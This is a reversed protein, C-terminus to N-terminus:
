KDFGRDGNEIHDKYKAEAIFLIDKMFDAIFVWDSDMLDNNYELFAEEKKTDYYVRGITLKM